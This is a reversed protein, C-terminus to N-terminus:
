LVPDQWCIRDSYIAPFAPLTRVVVPAKPVPRKRSGSPVRMSATSSLIIAAFLRLPSPLGKIFADLCM